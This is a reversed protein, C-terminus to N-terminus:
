PRRSERPSSPSETEWLRRLTGGAVQVGKPNRRAKTNDFDRVLIWRCVLEEKAM